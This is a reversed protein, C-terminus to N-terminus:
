DFLITTREERSRDKDTLCYNEPVRNWMSLFMTNRRWYRRHTGDKVADSNALIIMYDAGSKNSRLKKRMANKKGQFFSPAVNFAEGVLLKGGNSANIDHDNSDENGYKVIYEEFPFSHFDLLWKMGKLIVLDTM